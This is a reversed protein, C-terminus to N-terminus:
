IAELLLNDDVQGPTIAAGSKGGKRLGERTDLLLGGGIKKSTSSHCEYCHQVLVPRIKDEFFKLGAADPQEAACAQSLVLVLASIALTQAVVRGPNPRKHSQINLDQKTM